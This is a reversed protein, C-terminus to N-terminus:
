EDPTVAEKTADWAGGSVEKTKDWANASGEKTADWGDGSVEKTKDWVDSSVDKTKDWGDESTEKGSDWIDSFLSKTKEWLSPEELQTGEATAVGASFYISCIIIAIFQKFSILSKFHTM